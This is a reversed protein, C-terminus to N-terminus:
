LYILNCSQPFLLSKQVGIGLLAKLINLLKPIQSRIVLGRQCATNTLVSRIWCPLQVNPDADWPATPLDKITRM